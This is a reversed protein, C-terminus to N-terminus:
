APPPAAQLLAELGPLVEGVELFREQAEKYLRTAAKPSGARRVARLSLQLFGTDYPEMELLIQALRSAEQPDSELLAEVRSGLAQTLAERVSGHWGECLRELYPGRWLRSDGGRLFEEADSRVAGLAYGSPTSQIAEPGLTMRILHVQQKLTARARAEEAAPYFVEALKLGSVEARGAIRAELLYCLIELRKRARLPLPEGERELGVGGLVRLTLPSRTSPPPHPADALSPFYRQALRALGALGQSAFWDHRQRAAELDDGIRDAELAFREALKRERQRAHAERLAQLAEGTRGVAELALGYAFWAEAQKIGESECLRLCEQATELAAQAYGSQVQARSLYALSAALFKVDRSARSLELAAQANKLALIPGHPPQWTLYLRALKLHSETQWQLHLRHRLLEQAELILAEAQEFEGEDILMDALRLQVVAYRLTDGSQLALAKAEQLCAKARERLGLASATSAHNILSVLTAQTMSASRALELLREETQLAQAHQGRYTQIQGQLNLAAIQLVPPLAELGPLGELIREAEDLRNLFAYCAGVALRTRPRARAQYGPEQEWLGAARQWQGSQDAVYIQTEWWRLATDESRPLRQLWAEAERTHGQGALLEALLLVAEPDPPVASAAIEALQIARSPDTARLALAARFAREAQAAGSSWKVAEALWRAQGPHDGRGQASDAAAELLRLAEEPEPRAVEVFRAAEEPQRALAAMARRAYAQRRAPPTERAAVEQLLPHAFHNQRLIGQQALSRRAEALAPPELGAVQAWLAEFGEGYPGNSLLTRAEVAAQQASGEALGSLTRALLAEISVPVFSDPPTRWRWRQGDSWFFGQRALYCWFELTFLPNGGARAFIWSLGERPLPAGAQELLLRESEEASMPELRYGKFSELPEGRSTVLLGVGRLRAVAQALKQVLELREAPAEHLDELHLVFPALAALTAALTDVLTRVPVHQSQILRERQVDTWAPRRPPRPLALVLARDPLTAQLSLSTCPTERLLAQTTFTKGVGAEGWLWLVRGPRRCLVAWLHQRLQTIVEQRM